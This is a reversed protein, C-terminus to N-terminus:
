QMIIFTISRFKYKLQDKYIRYVIYIYEKYVRHLKELRLKM